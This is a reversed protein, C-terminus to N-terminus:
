EGNLIVCGNYVVIVIDGYFMDVDILLGVCM